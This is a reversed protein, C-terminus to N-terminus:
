ASVRRWFALLELPLLALLLLIVAAFTLAAYGEVAALHRPDSPPFEEALGLFIGSAWYLLACIVVVPILIAAALLLSRRTM